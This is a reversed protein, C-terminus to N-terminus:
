AVDAFEDHVRENFTVVRPEKSPLSRRFSQFRSRVRNSTVSRIAPLTQEATSLAAELDGNRIHATALNLMCFLRDRARGPTKGALAEDLHTFAAMDGLMVLSHAIEAALEAQDFYAIWQPEGEHKCANLEHEAAILAQRCVTAAHPDGHQCLQACARAEAVYALSRVAPTTGGSLVVDDRAARALYLAEHPHNQHLAQQSMRTLIFADIGRSAPGSARALRLAQIYHRQALGQRELDYAMWGALQLMEAAAAFLPRGLSETFESRLMPTVQEHLCATVASRILGSGRAHDLEAFWTCTERLQAIQRLTVRRTGPSGGFTVTDVLGYRWRTIAESIGSPTFDLAALARARSHDAEYALLETVCEITAPLSPEYRLALDGIAPAFALPWVDNLTVRRGLRDALVAAIVRALTLSPVTAGALYRGISVRSVTVGHRRALPHSNVAAAFSEHKGFGAEAYLRAFGAM